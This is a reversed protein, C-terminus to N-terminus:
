KESKWELFMQMNHCKLCLYVTVPARIRAPLEKVEDLNVEIDQKEKGPDNGVLLHSV